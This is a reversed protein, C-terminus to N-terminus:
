VRVEFHKGKDDDKPKSPPKPKPKVPKPSPTPQPPKIKNAAASLRDSSDEFLQSKTLAPKKTFLVKKVIIFAAATLLILTLLWYIAGHSDHYNLTPTPRSPETTAFQTPPSAPQADHADLERFERLVDQGRDYDSQTDPAPAPTQTERRPASPAPSTPPTDDGREVTRKTLPGSGQAVADRAQAEASDDGTSVEPTDSVEEAPKAFPSMDIRPPTPPTPRVAPAPATPPQPPELTM